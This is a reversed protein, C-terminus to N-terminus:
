IVDYKFFKNYKLVSKLMDTYLERKESYMKLHPLIEYPNNTTVRIARLDDYAWSKAISFYYDEVADEITKYKKLYIKKKGRLGTAVVRPENKDFSWVGFINNASKAFRSTLWASEVAAQALVISVPHPKLALLLEQVSDVKYKLKLDNIYQHEVNTAVDKNVQNYQKELKIYMQTVIPVLIDKFNQKKEQVTMVKPKVVELASCNSIFLSGIILSSCLLKNHM